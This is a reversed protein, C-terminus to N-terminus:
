HQDVRRQLEELAHLLQATNLRAERLGDADGDSRWHTMAAGISMVATESWEALVRSDMAAIRKELKEAARDNALQRVTAVAGLFGM